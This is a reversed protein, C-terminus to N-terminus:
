SSKTTLNSKMTELQSDIRADLSGKETDIVCGGATISTDSILEIRADQSLQGALDARLSQLYSLDNPNVRVSINRCDIVQQLATLAIQKVTEPREQIEHGLIKGAIEFALDIVEKEYKSTLEEKESNLLRAYNSLLDIARQFEQIANQKASSEVEHLKQQLRSTYEKRLRTAEQSVAEHIVHTPPQAPKEPELVIESEDVIDKHYNVPKKDFSQFEVGKYSSALPGHIVKQIGQKSM